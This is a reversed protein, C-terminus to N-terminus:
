KSLQFHYWFLNLSIHPIVLWFREFDGIDLTEHSHYMLSNPTRRDVEEEVERM